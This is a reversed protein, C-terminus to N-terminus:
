TVTDLLTTSFCYMEFHECHFHLSAHGHVKLEKGHLQMHLCSDTIFCTWSQSDSTVKAFGQGRLENQAM